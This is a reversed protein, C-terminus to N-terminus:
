SCNKRSVQLVRCADEAEAVLVRLSDCEALAGTRETNATQTDATLAANTALSAEYRDALPSLETQLFVIQQNAADLASLHM